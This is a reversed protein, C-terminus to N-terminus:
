GDEGVDEYRKNDDDDDGDDGGVVGRNAVTGRCKRRESEPDSGNASGEFSLTRRLTLFSAPSHCSLHIQAIKRERTLPKPVLSLNGRM